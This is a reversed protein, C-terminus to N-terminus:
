GDPFASAIALLGKRLEAIAQEIQDLYDDPMAEGQKKAMVVTSAADFRALLTQQDAQSALALLAARMAVADAALSQILAHNMVALQEPTPM